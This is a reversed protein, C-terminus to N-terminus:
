NHVIWIIVEIILLGICQMILSRLRQMLSILSVRKTANVLETEPQSEIVFNTLVFFM